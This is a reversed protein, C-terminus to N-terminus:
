SQLSLLLYKGPKGRKLSLCVTEAGELFSDLTFATRFVRRACPLVSIHHTSLLLVFFPHSLTAFDCGTPQGHWGLCSFFAALSRNPHVFQITVHCMQGKLLHHCPGSCLGLFSIFPFLFMETATILSIGKLRTQVDLQNELFLSQLRQSHALLKPLLSFIILCFGNLVRKKRKEKRKQRKKREKKEGGENRMETIM